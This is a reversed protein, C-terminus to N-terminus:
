SSKLVDRKHRTLISMLCNDTIFFNDDNYMHEEVKFFAEPYTSLFINKKLNEYWIMHEPKTLPDIDLARLVNKRGHSHRYM